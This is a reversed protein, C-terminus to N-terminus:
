SAAELTDDELDLSLENARRDIHSSPKDTEPGLLGDSVQALDKLNLAEKSTDLGQQRTANVEPMNEIGHEIFLADKDEQHQLLPARNNGEAKLIALAKDTTLYDGQQLAGTGNNQILVQLGGNGALSKTINLINTTADQGLKLAKTVESSIFPKYTNGQAQAMISYQKAALAKDTLSGSIAMGILARLAEGSEDPDASRIIDKGYMMIAQHIESAPISTLLAFEEISLPTMCWTFGSDIYHGIIHQIAHQILTPNDPDKNLSLAIDTYGRPRPIRQTTNM